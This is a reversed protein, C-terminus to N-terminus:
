RMKMVLRLIDGRAQMKEVSHRIDETPLNTGNSLSQVAWNKRESALPSQVRRSHVEVTIPKNSYKRVEDLAREWFGAMEPRLVAEDEQFLRNNSFELYIKGKEEYKLADLHFPEGPFTHSNGHEDFTIFQYSYLTGVTIIRGRKDRGDWDVRRPPVGKGKIVKILTGNQDSVRFEWRKTAIKSLGPYFTVLPPEPILPTWAKLVQKSDLRAYHDFDADSPIPNAEELVKATQDTDSQILTPLKLLIEPPPKKIDLKEKIEGEITEALPESAPTEESRAARVAAMMLLLAISAALIIIDIRERYTYIKSNM